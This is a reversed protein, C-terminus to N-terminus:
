ICGGKGEDECEKSHTKINRVTIDDSSTLFSFKALLFITCQFFNPLFQKKRQSCALRWTAKTVKDM